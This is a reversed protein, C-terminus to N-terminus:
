KSWRIKAGLKGAKQKKIRNIAQEKREEEAQVCVLYTKNNREIKSFLHEIRPFIKEIKETRCNCMRSLVEFDLEIEFGRWCFCYLLIYAGQEELSLRLRDPSSIWDKAYFRFIPSQEERTTKRM